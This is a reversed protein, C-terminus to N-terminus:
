KPKEIENTELTSSDSFGTMRGSGGEKELHEKELYQVNRLLGISSSGKRARLSKGQERPRKGPGQVALRASILVQGKGQAMSLVTSPVFADLLM